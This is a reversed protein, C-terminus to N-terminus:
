NSKWMLVTSLIYLSSLSFSLFFVRETVWMVDALLWTLDTFLFQNPTQHIKVSCIKTSWVWVILCLILLLLPKSQQLVIETLEKKYIQSADSKKRQFFIFYFIKRQKMKRRNENSSHADKETWLCRFLLNRKLTYCVYFM